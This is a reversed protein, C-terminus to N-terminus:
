CVMSDHVACGQCLKGVSPLRVQFVGGSHEGIRASGAAGDILLQKKNRRMKGVKTHLYYIVDSKTM